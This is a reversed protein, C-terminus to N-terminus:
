NKDISAIFANLMKSIEEVEISIKNLADVEGLKVNRCIILLTELEYLSGRAIKLFQIYSTKSNRGWGEAINVPVSVASRNLQKILGYKENDPFQSTLNYIQTVLNISRQWIQLDKYSNIIAM